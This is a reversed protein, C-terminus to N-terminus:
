PHSSNNNQSTDVTANTQDLTPESSFNNPLYQLALYVIGALIITSNAIYRVTEIRKSNERGQPKEYNNSTNM